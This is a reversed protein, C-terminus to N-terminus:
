QEQKSLKLADQGREFLETKHLAFYELARYVAAVVARPTVTAGTFQDFQGGDKKVAWGDAEPNLLSKGAFKLIWGSVRTDIGDGLGPTERHSVARVGTLTGQNNIAVLLQIRGSYGDPAVVPLIIAEPIDGKFGVWGQADDPLPGLLSPEPLKISTDLLSNDFHRAPLVEFLAREESARVQDAIRDETFLWTLSVLGVTLLAFLGLSLSNKCIARTVPSGNDEKNISNETSM